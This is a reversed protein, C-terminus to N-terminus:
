TSVRSSKCFDALARASQLRGAARCPVCVETLMYVSGTDGRSCHAASGHLISKSMHHLQFLSSWLLFWFVTHHPSFPECPISVGPRQSHPCGRWATKVSAITCFRGLCLSIRFAESRIGISKRYRQPRSSLKCLLLFLELQKCHLGYNQMEFTECKRAMELFICTLVPGGWDQRM